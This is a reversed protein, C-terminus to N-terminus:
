RGEMVELHARDAARNAEDDIWASIQALIRYAELPIVVQDCVSPWKAPPNDALSQALPLFWDEWAADNDWESQSACIERRRHHWESEALREAERTRRHFEEDDSVAPKFNM